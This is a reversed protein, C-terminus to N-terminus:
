CTVRSALRGTRDSQSISDRWMSCRSTSDASGWASAIVVAARARLTDPVSHDAWVREMRARVAIVTDPEVAFLGIEAARIESVWREIQENTPGTPTGRGRSNPNTGRGGASSDPDDPGDTGNTDPRPPVISNGTDGPVIRREQQSGRWADVTLLGALGIVSAAIIIASTRGIRQWLRTPPRRPTGRKGGSPPQQPHGSTRM